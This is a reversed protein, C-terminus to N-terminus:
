GFCALELQRHGLGMNVFCCATSQRRQASAEGAVLATRRRHKFRRRHLLLIKNSAATNNSLADERLGSDAACYCSPPLPATSLASCLSCASPGGEAYSQLGQM